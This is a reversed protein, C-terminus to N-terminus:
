RTETATEGEGGPEEEAPAEAPAEVADGEPPAGSKRKEGRREPQPYRVEATLMVMLRRLQSGPFEYGYLKSVGANQHTYTGELLYRLHRGAEYVLAGRGRWVDIDGQDLDVIFVSRSRQYDGGATLVARHFSGLPQEVRFGLGNQMFVDGVFVNAYVGRDAFVTVKSAEARRYTLSVNGAGSRFPEREGPVRVVTVAGRVYSSWRASFEHAHYLGLEGFEARRAPVPVRRDPPIPMTASTLMPPLEFSYASSRGQGVRTEVGLGDRTWEHGVSLSADASLTRPLRPDPDLPFFSAVAVAQHLDWDPIFRWAFDQGGYANFFSDAGAPRAESGVTTPRSFFDLDSTRGQSAGASLGFDVDRGASVTTGLGIEHALRLERMNQTYTFLDANYLVSAEAKPGRLRYGLGLRSKAFGDATGVQLGRDSFSPAGVANDTAGLSVGAHALLEARADAALGCAALALLAAVTTKRPARRVTIV